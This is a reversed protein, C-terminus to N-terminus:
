SYWLKQVSVFIEGNEEVFKGKENKLIISTDIGNQTEGDLVFKFSKSNKVKMLVLLAIMFIFLIVIIKIILRFIKRKKEQEQFLEHEDVLTM